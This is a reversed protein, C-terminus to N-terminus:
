TLRMFCTGPYYFQLIQKYDWGDRVMERAGWQCLGLHHGFGRGKFIIKGSKKYISFYFSKVEELMSYLKKGTVTVLQKLGKLAVEHVLGAKDKKIVKAERLRNSKFVQAMRKEFVDHDYCVQWSYINCRKCHTCAYDRALYPAQQFNFGVIYAPIVGGCCSDFMALVPNGEFGLLIGKTHEVARKIVRSNHFGNYTQHANTNKVHYARKSKRAELIMATVYSRSVIAFAKNVELPWGPWSETRLVAFVYDELDLCNICMIRNNKKIILFSGQYSNGQFAIYGNRPKVQIAPSPSRKGNIFFMHRKTSLVLKSEKIIRKKNLQAADGIIFGGDAHLQWTKEADNFVEDLLVRVKLQPTIAAKERVRQLSNAIKKYEQHWSRTSGVIQWNKECLENLCNGYHKRPSGIVDVAIGSSTYTLCMLAHYPYGNIYINGFRPYLLLQKQIIPVGNFIMAKEDARIVLTKDSILCRQTPKLPESLFFGNDSFIFLAQQNNLCKKAVIGNPWRDNGADLHSSLLFLTVILSFYLKM